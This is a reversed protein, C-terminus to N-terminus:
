NCLEAEDRPLCGGPFSGFTKERMKGFHGVRQLSGPRQGKAAFGHTLSCALVLWDDLYRFILVREPHLIASVPPHGPYFGGQVSLGTGSVCVLFEDPHILVQFHSDKLGTSFMLDYLCSSQLISITTEIHFKSM